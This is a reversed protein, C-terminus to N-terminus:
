SLIQNYVFRSFGFTKAIQVKQENDPYIRYKNAKLM